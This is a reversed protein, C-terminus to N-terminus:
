IERFIGFSSETKKEREYSSANAWFLADKPHIGNVKLAYTHISGLTKAWPKVERSTFWDEFNIALM